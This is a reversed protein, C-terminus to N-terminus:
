LFGSPLHCRSMLCLPGCFKRAQSPTLDGVVGRLDNMGSRSQLLTRRAMITSRARDTVPLWSIALTKGPVNLELAQRFRLMKFKDSIPPDLLYKMNSAYRMQPVIISLLCHHRTSIQDWMLVGSWLLRRGAGYSCTYHKTEDIRKSIEHKRKRGVTKTM